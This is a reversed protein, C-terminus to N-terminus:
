IGINPTTKSSPLRHAFYLLGISLLTPSVAALPLRPSTPPLCHSLLSLLVSVVVPTRLLTARISGGGMRKVHVRYEISVYPADPCCDYYKEFRKQSM